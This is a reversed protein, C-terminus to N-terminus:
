LILIIIKILNHKSINFSGLNEAQARLKPEKHNKLNIRHFNFTQSFFNFLIFM